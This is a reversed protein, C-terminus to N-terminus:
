SVIDEKIVVEQKGGFTEVTYYVPDDTIVCGSVTRGDKLKFVKKGSSSAPPLSNEPVPAAKIATDPSQTKPSLDQVIMRSAPPHTASRYWWYGGGALAILVTWAVIRKTLSPRPETEERRKKLATKVEEASLGSKLEHFAFAGRIGGILFLGFVLASAPNRHTQQFLMAQGYLYFLLAAVAATRSCRYIFFSLVLFIAADVFSAASIGPLIPTGKLSMFAVIGTVAGILLAVSSGQICAKKADWM